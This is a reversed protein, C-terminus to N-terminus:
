VGARKLNRLATRRLDYPVMGPCGAARCASDWLKRYDVIRCPDGPRLGPLPPGDYVRWFVWPVVHVRGTAREYGVTRQWVRDIIAGLAGDLPLWRPKGKNRRQKHVLRLARTKRDISTWALEAIAGPRMGTWFFWEVFDRVVPDHAGLYALIQAVQDDSFWG